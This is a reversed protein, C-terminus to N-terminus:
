ITWRWTSVKEALMDSDLGAFRALHTRANQTCPHLGQQGEKALSKKPMCSFNSLLVRTRPKGIPIPSFGVRRIILYEGRPMGPM